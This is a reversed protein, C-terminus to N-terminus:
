FPGSLEVPVLEYANFMKAHGTVKVRTARLLKEKKLKAVASKVIRIGCNLDNAIRGQSLVWVRDTPNISSAIRIGVLKEVYTLEDKPRCLVHRIWNDRMRYFEGAPSLQTQRTDM